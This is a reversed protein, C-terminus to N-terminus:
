NRENYCRTTTQKCKYHKNASIFENNIVFHIVLIFIAALVIVILIPIFSRVLESFLTKVLFFFFFFFFPIKDFLYPTSEEITYLLTIVKDISGRRSLVLVILTRGAFVWILRAYSKAYTWASRLRRGDLSIQTKAPRVSMTNTKDQQPKTTQVIKRILDHASLKIVIVSLARIKHLFRSLVLIM